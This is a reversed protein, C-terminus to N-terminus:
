NLDNFANVKEGKKNKIKPCTLILYGLSAAIESDQQRLRRLTPNCFM